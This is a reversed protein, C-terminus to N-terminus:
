NGFMMCVGFNIALSSFPMKYKESQSPKSKDTPTYDDYEYPDVYETEKDSTTMSPLNDIGNYKSETIVSKKPAYNLSNLALEFYAGFNDSFPYKVGLAGTVGLAIGGKFKEISNSTIGNIDTGNEEMTFSPIGIILGFRSYPDIKELGAAIVFCPTFSIMSSKFTTVDKSQKGSLYNHTSTFESKLGKLYSIGFEAGVNENFMMGPTLTINIGKGLSFKAMEEEEKYKNGQTTQTTTSNSLFAFSGMPANYGANFKVFFGQANVNSSMFCILVFIGSLINIKRKMIM